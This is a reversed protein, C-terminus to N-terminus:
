ILPHVRLECRQSLFQLLIWIANIKQAVCQKFRIILRSFLSWYFVCTTVSFVFTQHLSGNSRSLLSSTFCMIKISSFSKVNSNVVFLWFLPTNPLLLDFMEKSRRRMLLIAKTPFQNHWSINWPITFHSYM